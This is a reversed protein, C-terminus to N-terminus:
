IEEKRETVQVSEQSGSITPTTFMGVLFGFGIYFFLIFDFDFALLIFKWLILLFVVAGVFMWFLSAQLRIITNRGM